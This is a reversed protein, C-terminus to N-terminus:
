VSIEDLLHAWRSVGVADGYWVAGPAPLHRVDDLELMPAGHLGACELPTVGDGDVGASRGLAARYSFATFAGQGGQGELVAALPSEAGVVGTGAVTRYAVRADEAPSPAYLNVFALSSGQADPPMDDRENSRQEVARGLPYDELNIHPTGLTVVAAVRQAAPLEGFRVGCYAETVLFARALWGGASHGVLVVRAEPAAGRLAAECAREVAQLYWAFDRGALTPYWQWAEVQAVEVREHGRRRLAAALEGYLAAGRLFGPLVVVAHARAAARRATGSAAERRAGRLAGRTLSTFLRPAM